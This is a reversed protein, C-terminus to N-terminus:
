ILVRLYRTGDSGSDRLVMTGNGAATEMVRGPGGFRELWLEKEVPEWRCVVKGRRDVFVLAESPRDLKRGEEFAKAFVDM